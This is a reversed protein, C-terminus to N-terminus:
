TSPSTHTNVSVVMQEAAELGTESVLERLKPEFYRQARASLFRYQLPIIRQVGYNIMVNDLPATRGSKEQVNDTALRTYAMKSLKETVTDMRVFVHTENCLVEQPKFQDKYSVKPHCNYYGLAYYQPRPGSQNQLQQVLDMEVLVTYIGPTMFRIAPDYIFYISVLYKPLIDLISIMILEDDLYYHMHYSGELHTTPNVIPSTMFGWRFEEVSRFRTKGSHVSEQFKNYLDYAKNLTAVLDPHCPNCGLLKVSLRHRFDPTATEALRHDSLLNHLSPPQPTRTHPAADEKGATELRRRRREERMAKAKRSPPLNPDAGRGPTPKRRQREQPQSTSQSVDSREEETTTTERSASSREAAMVVERREVEVKEVGVSAVAVQVLGAEEEMTSCDKVETTQDSFSTLRHRNEWRSDGHRLFQAWRRIVRRHKKKLVFESIPLRLAYGPCCVLPFCPKFLVKGTRWWGNEMLLDLLQPSMRSCLFYGYRDGRPNCCYACTSWEKPPTYQVSARALVSRSSVLIRRSSSQGTVERGENSPATAKQQTDSAGPEDVVQTTLGSAQSLPVGDVEESESAKVQVMEEEVVTEVSEKGPEPIPAVGQNIGNRAAAAAKVLERSQRRSSGKGYCNGM